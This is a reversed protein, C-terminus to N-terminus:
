FSKFCYPKRRQHNGLIWPIGMKAEVRCSHLVDRPILWGEKAQKVEIQHMTVKWKLSKLLARLEGRIRVPQCLPRHHHDQVTMHIKVIFQTSIQHGNKFYGYVISQYKSVNPQIPNMLLLQIHPLTNLM